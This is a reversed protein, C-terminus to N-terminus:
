VRKLLKSVKRQDKVREEDFAAISEHKMVSKADGKAVLSEPTPAIGEPHM